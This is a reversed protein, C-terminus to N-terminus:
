KRLSFIEYFVFLEWLCRFDISFIDLLIDIILNLYISHTVQLLSNTVVFPEFKGPVQVSNSFSNVFPCDVIEKEKALQFEFVVLILHFLSNIPISRHYIQISVFVLDEVAVSVDEIWFCDVFLCDIKVFSDDFFLWLPQHRILVHGKNIFVFPNLKCFSVFVSIREQFHLRVISNCHEYKCPVFFIYFFFYLFQFFSWSSMWKVCSNYILNAYNISSGLFFISLCNLPVFFTNLDRRRVSRAIVIYSDIMLQQFLIILCYYPIKPSDLFIFLILCRVSVKAVAEISQIICILIYNLLHCEIFNLYIVKVVIQSQGIIVFLLM